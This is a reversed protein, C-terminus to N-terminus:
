REDEEHRSVNHFPDPTVSKLKRGVGRIHSRRPGLAEELCEAENVLTENGNLRLLSENYKKEIKEQM